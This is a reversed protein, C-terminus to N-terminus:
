SINYKASNCITRIENILDSIQVLTINIYKIHDTTYDAGLFCTM